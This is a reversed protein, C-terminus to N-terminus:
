FFLWVVVAIVAAAVIAALVWLVSLPLSRSARTMVGQRNNRAWM